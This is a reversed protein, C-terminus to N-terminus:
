KVLKNKKWVGKEIKGDKHTLTGLGEFESEKIEGVYKKGSEFIWTMEGFPFDDKFEGTIIGVDIDGDDFWMAKTLKGKGHKLSNKWEGSYSSGDEAFTFTGNGERHSEKFEGVYKDGNAFVFTGKGHYIGDKMEGTYKDGNAQVFTGQKPMRGNEWEGTLEGLGIWTYTGLGHQVGDKMEGVYKKKKDESIWTTFKKNTM